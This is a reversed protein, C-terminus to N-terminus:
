EKEKKRQVKLMKGNVPYGNLYRIARDAEEVSSMSVFGFGKSKHSERDRYIQKFGFEFSVITSVVTGYESFLSYLFDENVDTPLHYIFLNAGKPGVNSNSCM